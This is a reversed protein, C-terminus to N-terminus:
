RVPDSEKTYKTPLSIICWLTRYSIKKKFLQLTTDKLSFKVDIWQPIDETNLRYYEITQEKLERVIFDSTVDDKNTLIIVMKMM